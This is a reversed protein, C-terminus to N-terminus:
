VLSAETEKEIYIEIIDQVKVDKYGELSIGCEFGNQVEKVDDKFRRLSGLKGEWIQVSDRILRARSSRLVKGEIVYAGAITGVKPITFTDRVEVQGIIEETIEPALLGLMAGRVAEIVDYIISFLRIEVGQESAVKRAKGAPRVNFGIIIAEATSALLVDSETIGGPSAHVITVKVKETSQKELSERLAETTGQVDTKVIVKLEVQDQAQMLEHLSELSPKAATMTTAARNKDARSKAVKEAVKMDAAVDFQDGAIPVADLGLVEIPTSPGAEKLSRGHEDTMARIKGFAAGAVLFEGAQLTGDQVLVNAVPGRGRDLYAELVIGSAPRQSSATLELVEAQLAIMELLKDVGEGTKASVECIITDGGLEEPVLSQELLMRRTRESDAGPLDCKNIAVIIPVDAARSHNIAEITQPMVGDDAATVLIVIDTVNAGRARMATFAEHGPTDIFSITGQATKVRYAGIHQTIGGAESSVIDSKRIKDLLSTKGHDVHGMMTIVPPRSIRSKEEEETEEARTSSLLDKEDLAVNEVEYDFDSAVIKATDLDLTSNINITGVGMGMLQMMLETAKIGMRRALEQLTIQDEIRIVRKIAKPTTIETKKGKKGPAMRRKRGPPSKGFRGPGVGSFRKQPAMDRSEVERRRHTVKGRRSTQKGEAPGPLPGVPQGGLPPMGSMDTMDKSTKRQAAGRATTRGPVIRRRIVPAETSPRLTAPGTALEIGLPRSEKDDAAVDDQFLDPMMQTEEVKDIEAKTKEVKGRKVKPAAKEAIESEAVAEPEAVVEQAPAAELESVPEKVVKPKAARKARPASPLPQEEVAAAVKRKRSPVVEAKAKKFEAKAEALADETKPPQVRAPKASAGGRQRRRIVTPRIRDEVTNEAKEKQLQRRVQQVVDDELASMYNTIDIGMDQIKAVMTENDISFEQALKYVRIKQAM